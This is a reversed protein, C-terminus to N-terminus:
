TWAPQFMHWEPPATAIVAELRRAIERTFAAVDRKRSGTDPVPLPGSVLCRWGEPTQRPATVFLPAGTTIALLAPGAPVRRPAGFMEVEIGGGTLDRDAVLAVIRNSALATGLKRGVGEDDLGVIDMRLARRQELFLRNLRAPRLREAVSVVPTGYAAMARGAADWNGFHPLVAVAGAGSELAQTFLEHGDFIFRRRVWEDDRDILDFADFWYRAYSRFAERAAAAVLPDDVPRGLVRAQNALVVARVRPLVAHAISGLLMFVRRGRESPLVHALWALGRYLLYVATERPRERRRAAGRVAAPEGAAETM